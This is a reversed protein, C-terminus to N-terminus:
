GGVELTAKVAAPVGPLVRVDTIVATKFGQLAVTVSYTGPCRPCTSRARGNTMTEFKTGTANSTVVVTAGPVVGGATDTVVGTISSSAGQAYALATLHLLFAVSLLVRTVVHRM